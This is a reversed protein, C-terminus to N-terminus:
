GFVVVDGKIHKRQVPRGGATPLREQWPRKYWVGLTQRPFVDISISCLSSERCVKEKTKTFWFEAMNAPLNRIDAATDEGGRAWKELFISEVRIAFRVNTYSIAFKRVKENDESISGVKVSPKERDM